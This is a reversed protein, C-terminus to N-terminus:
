EGSRIRTKGSSCPKVDAQRQRLATATFCSLAGRNRRKTKKACCMTSYCHTTTIRSRRKSVADVSSHQKVRAPIPEPSLLYGDVAHM